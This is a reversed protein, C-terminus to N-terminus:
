WNEKLKVYVGGKTLLQCTLNSSDVMVWTCKPPNNWLNKNQRLCLSIEQVYHPFRQNLVSWYRARWQNTPKNTDWETPHVM